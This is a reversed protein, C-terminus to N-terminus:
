VASKGVTLAAMVVVRMEVLQVALSEAMWSVTGVAMQLAM